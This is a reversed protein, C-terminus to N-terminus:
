DHGTGDKKPGKKAPAQGTESDKSGLFRELSDLREEWFIRYRNIWAAAESMPRADISLRHIRGDIRRQVLGSRELIRLHKSVAPLSIEFPAALQTVSAPGRSLLELIARRTPDALAM